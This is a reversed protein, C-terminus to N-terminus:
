QMSFGLDINIRNHIVLNNKIARIVTLVLYVKKRSIAHHPEVLRLHRFKKVGGLLIDAIMNGIYKFVSFQIRPASDFIIQCHTHGTLFISHFEIREVHYQGNSESNAGRTPNLEALPGIGVQGSIQALSEDNVTM